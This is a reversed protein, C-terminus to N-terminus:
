PLNITQVDNQYLTWNSTLFIKFTQYSLTIQMSALTTRLYDQPQNLPMQCIMLTCFFLYSALLLAKPFVMLTQSPQRILGMSLFMNIDKLFRCYYISFADVFAM